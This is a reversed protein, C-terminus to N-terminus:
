PRYVLTEFNDQRFCARDYQCTYHCAIPTRNSQFFHNERYRIYVVYYM